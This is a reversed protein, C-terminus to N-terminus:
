AREPKCKCTLIRSHPRDHRWLLSYPRREPRAQWKGWFWVAGAALAIQDVFFIEYSANIFFHDTIMFRVFPYAELLLGLNFAGKDTNRLTNRNNFDRLKTIQRGVNLGMGAKAALGWYFWSNPHMELEGGLQLAFFHNWTKSIYDSRRNMRFFLTKMREDIEVFRLGILWSLSFYNVRKPTYHFWFNAEGMNLKSHYTVRARDAHNFDSTNNQTFPFTLARYCEAIAKAHWQLLGTYALQFTYKQSPRYLIAARLGPEHDFNNELTNTSIKCDGKKASCPQVLAPNAGGGLRGTEALCRDSVDGLKLYVLDVDLAWHHSVRGPKETGFLLYPLLLVIALCRTM